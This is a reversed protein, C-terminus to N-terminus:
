HGWVLVYFAWLLWVGLVAYSLAASLWDGFKGWDTPKARRRMADYAEYETFPGIGNM